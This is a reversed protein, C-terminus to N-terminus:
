TLTKWELGEVVSFDYKYVVISSEKSLVADIYM